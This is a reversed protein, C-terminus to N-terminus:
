VKQRKYDDFLKLIYETSDVLDATIWYQVGELDKAALAEVIKEHYSVGINPSMALSQGFMIHYYPSVKDWLQKTLNLLEPSDAQTYILFHFQRNSELLQKTQTTRRVKAFQRQAEELTTIFEDTVHPVAKGAAKPELLLRIESIEQLNKRSLENVTSGSKPRKSILGRAALRGMAERVPIRSVDMIRAIEETVLKEGPAIEGSIIANELETYVTEQVTKTQIKSLASHAQTFTQGTATGKQSIDNKKQSLRLGPLGSIKELGLEEQWGRIIRSVSQPSLPRNGKRSKFLYNDAVISSNEKQLIKLARQIALNMRPLNEFNEEIQTNFLIPDGIELKQIDKVRLNLIEQVPVQSHVAIELLLLDRPKSSLHDRIKELNSMHTHDNTHM